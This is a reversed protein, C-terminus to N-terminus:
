KVYQKSLSSLFDRFEGKRLFVSQFAPPNQSLIQRNVLTQGVKHRGACRIQQHSEEKNRCFAEGTCSTHLTSQERIKTTILGSSHRDKPHSLSLATFLQALHGGPSKIKVENWGLFLPSSCLTSHKAKQQQQRKTNQMRKAKRAKLYMKGFQDSVKHHVGENYKPIQNHKWLLTDYPRIPYRHHCSRDRFKYLVM